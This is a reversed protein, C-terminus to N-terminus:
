GECQVLRAPIYGKQMIICQGEDSLVWDLYKKVEGEPEGDTYMYLARAIPYSKNVVAIVSPTVCEGGSEETICVMKVKDTAFVQSGYGIACQTSGVLAVVDKTAQMDRSGLKYDQKSGLVAKRFYVYTGSSNQRSVRVIEQNQCGPVNVGLDTWKEVTGDEGYIQALQTFSLSTLPNDKHLFVAVADYGVVNQVPKRGRKKALEIEREQMARSANAINVTGNILAAIGTGSGGANVAVGVSPDIRKYAESWAQVATVMSDSGKNQILIRESRAKEPAIFAMSGGVMCVAILQLFKYM